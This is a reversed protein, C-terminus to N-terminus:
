GGARPRWPDVDLGPYRAAVGAVTEKTWYPHGPKPFGVLALQRPDSQAVFRAWEPSFGKFPWAQYGGWDAGAPKFSLHMMVRYTGADAFDVSRHYTDPRYLVVSGAPGSAEGPEDYLAAYEEISLTHREVPVHATLRRSVLRTAGNAASVDTLYVFMEVQGYARDPHPVLVSHNPYDTHLLQNYGSPQGAYKASIIGMYLRLDETGLLDEAMDILVPHVALRNLSRSKFPLEPWAADWDRWPATREPDNGGQMEEPTPFLHGLVKRAGALDDAPIVAPVLCWGDREWATKQAQTLVSEGM